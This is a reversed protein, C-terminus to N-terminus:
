TWQCRPIMLFPDMWPLLGPAEQQYLWCTAFRACCLSICLHLSLSCSLLTSSIHWERGGRWALHVEIAALVGYVLFSQLLSVLIVPQSYDLASSMPLFRLLTM